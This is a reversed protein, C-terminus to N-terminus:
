VQKILHAAGGGTVNVYGTTPVMSGSGAPTTAGLGLRGNNKYGWCKVETGGSVVACRYDDGNSVSVVSFHLDM